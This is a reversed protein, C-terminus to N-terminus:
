KRRQVYATAAGWSAQYKKKSLTVFQDSALSKTFSLVISGSRLREAARSLDQMLPASYCTSNMFVFDADSWDHKRMDGNFFQIRANPDRLDGVSPLSSISSARRVHDRHELKTLPSHLVRRRRHSRSPSSSSSTGNDISSGITDEEGDEEEENDEVEVEDSEVFTEYRELVDNAAQVLGELIEVGEIRKFDTLLAVTFCARGTGSGLDVFCGEGRAVREPFLPRLEKLLAAFSNFSIEGYVLSNDTLGKNKRESKSLTKAHSTSCSNFLFSHFTHSANTIAVASAIEMLQEIASDGQGQGEASSLDINKINDDNRLALSKLIRKEERTILGRKFLRSTVFLLQALRSLGTASTPPLTPLSSRAITSPVISSSKSSSGNSTAKNPVQYPQQQQKQTPKQETRQKKEKEMRVIREAERVGSHWASDACGISIGYTAEGAFCIRMSGPEPDQWSGAASQEEGADSHGNSAAASTASRIGLPEALLRCTAPSSGTAPYSYAGCSMPDSGWRTILYGIPDPIPNDDSDNGDRRADWTSQTITPARFTFATPVSGHETDTYHLPSVHFQIRTAPISRPAQGTSDQKAAHAATASYANRIIQMVSEIIEADSMKEAALSDTWTPFVALVHPSGRIAPQSPHRPTTFPPFYPTPENQGSAALAAAYEAANEGRYRVADLESATPTPRQDASTEEEEEEGDQSGMLGSLNNGRLCEEVTSGLISFSTMDEPWWRRAFQLIVKNTTGMGMRDIASRKWSPLRPIFEIREQKLVGLPVTVIAYKARYTIPLQRSRQLADEVARNYREPDIPHTSTSTSSPLAHEPVTHATVEVGKGDNKVRTVVMGLRIKERIDADEIALQFISSMGRTLMDVQPEGLGDNWHSGSLSSLPAADFIQACASLYHTIRHHVDEDDAVHETGCIGTLDEVSMDSRECEEEVEVLRKLAAVDNDDIAQPNTNHHVDKAHRRAHAEYTDDVERKFTAVGAKWQEPAVRNGTCDLIYQANFGRRKGLPLRHKWALRAFPNSPGYHHIWSAGADIPVGLDSNTLVRGGIRHRGELVIFSLGHKKAEIAASIGAPGAGIIIIDVDTDAM